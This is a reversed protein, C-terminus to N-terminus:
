IDEAVQLLQTAALPSLPLHLFFKMEELNIVLHLSIGVNNAFSFLQPYELRPIKNLWLDDWFLCSKGDAVNVMAIGKFSDILTLIDRWWFSDVRNSSNPLAGTSYHREWILNVWPIDHRNYFKHLNKLLLAENQTQLNLVGLGGESKPLCVMEWAAKSPSRDALDAGRWLSHKRYTDVQKIVTKHLKFTSMCFMPLSTFISNTVELRGAQSLFTSTYALRRECKTVLPLFDVVKPKTLGLPLGLYTFSLTGLECGILQALLTAKSDEVNIPIMMSKSFNVKLGTSASFDHLINKLALLQDQCAEM